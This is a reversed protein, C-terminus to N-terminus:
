LAKPPPQSDIGDEACLMFGVGVFAVASVFGLLFHHLIKGAESEAEDIRKSFHMNFVALRYQFVFRVTGRLNLRRNM